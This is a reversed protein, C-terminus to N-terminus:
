RGTAPLPAQVMKPHLGSVNLTSHVLLPMTGGVVHTANWQRRPVPVTSATCPLGLALRLPERQAPGTLSALRMRATGKTHPRRASGVLGHTLAAPIGIGAVVGM